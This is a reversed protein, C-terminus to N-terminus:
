GFLYRCTVAPFRGGTSGGPTKAFGLYSGARGSELSPHGTIATLAFPFWLVLWSGTSIPFFVRQRCRM